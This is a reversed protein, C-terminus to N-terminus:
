QDMARYRELDTQLDRRHAEYREMEHPQIKPRMADLVDIAHTATFHRLFRVPTEGRSQAVAGDFLTRIEDRGRYVRDPVVELTADSAFLALLADIRGGDGLQNYRAVLERIADRAIWPAENPGSSAEDSTM